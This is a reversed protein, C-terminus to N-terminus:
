EAEETAPDAMMTDMIDDLGLTDSVYMDQTFATGSHGLYVSVAKVTKGALIMRTAFTHRLMHPYVHRGVALRGATSVATYLDMRNYRQGTRTEFLWDHGAFEQRIEAVLSEPVEIWREKDGKGRIRVRYEDVGAQLDGARIDCLETIRLGTLLLTRMILRVKLSVDTCGLLRRVEDGSLVKNRPVTKTNLKAKKVQRLRQDFQYAALVDRADDTQAFVRKIVAKAGTIRKNVTQAAYGSDRLGIAYSELADISMEMDNERLFRLFARTDATYSNKIALLAPADYKM